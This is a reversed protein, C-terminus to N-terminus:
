DGTLNLVQLIQTQIPRLYAYSVTRANFGSSTDYVSKTSFYGVSKMSITCHVVHFVGYTPPSDARPFILHCHFGLM